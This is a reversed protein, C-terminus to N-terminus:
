RCELKLPENSSRLQCVHGEGLAELLAREELARSDLNCVDRCHQLLICCHGNLCWGAPPLHMAGLHRAEHFAELFKHHIRYGLAPLCPMENSNQETRGAERPVRHKTAHCMSCYERWWTPLCRGPGVLLRPLLCHQLHLVSDKLGVRFVAASNLPQHFCKGAAGETGQFGAPWHGSHPDELHTGLRLLICCCSKVPKACASNQRLPHQEPFPSLHMHHITAFADADEVLFTQAWLAVSLGRREQHALQLLDLAAYQFYNEQLSGPLWITYCRLGRRALHHEEIDKFDVPQGQSAPRQPLAPGLEKRCDLLAGQQFKRLTGLNWSVLDGDLLHGRFQVLSQSGRTQCAYLVLQERTRRAQQQLPQISGLSDVHCAAAGAGPLGQFLRGQLSWLSVLFKELSQRGLLALVNRRALCEVEGYHRAEASARNLADCVDEPNLPEVIIRAHNGCPVCVCLAGFFVPLQPELHNRRSFQDRRAVPRELIGECGALDAHLRGIVDAQPLEAVIECLVRGVLLGVSCVLPHLFEVDRWHCSPFKQCCLHTSAALHALKSADIGKAITSAGHTCLRGAGCIEDQTIEKRSVNRLAAEVLAQAEFLVVVERSGVQLPVPLRESAVAEDDGRLM